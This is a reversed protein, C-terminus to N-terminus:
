LDFLESLIPDDSCIGYFQELPKADTVSAPVPQYIVVINHKENGLAIM